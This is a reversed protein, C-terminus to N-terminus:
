KEESHGTFLEGAAPFMADRGIRTAAMRYIDRSIEAGFAPASVADALETALRLDKEMMPIPILGQGYVGDKLYSGLYSRLVTSEASGDALAGLLTEANVGSAVGLAMAEANSVTMAGVLWNNLIKTIKANGLAGMYSWSGLPALRTMVEEAATRDGAIVFPSEGRDAAAAGGGIVAGDLYTGGKGEAWQGLEQTLGVSTSSTDVLRVPRAEALGDPSFVVSVLAADDNVMTIVLDSKDALDRPSTARQAGEREIEAVVADRVDLAIVQEGGKLLNRAMPMGMAGLGIIGIM